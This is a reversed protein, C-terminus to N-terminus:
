DWAVERTSRSVGQHCNRAYRGSVPGPIQCGFLQQMVSDGGVQANLSHAFTNPSALIVVAIRSRRVCWRWIRSVPLSLQRKLLLAQSVLFFFGQIFQPRGRRGGGGANKDASRRACELLVQVCQSVCFLRLCLSLQM